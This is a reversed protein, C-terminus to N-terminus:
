KTSNASLQPRSRIPRSADIRRGIMTMSHPAFVPEERKDDTDDLSAAAAVHPTQALMDQEAVDTSSEAGEEFYNSLGEEILCHIKPIKLRLLSPNRKM